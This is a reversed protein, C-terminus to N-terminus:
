VEEYWESEEVRTAKLDTRVVDRGRRRPGCQLRAQPLWGFLMSKPIRHDPMRAVHGLWALWSKRVKEAATEEDGWRKRVEAMTIREAWQRRNSIGLITRICRHHFSNLKRASKKLPIWCEAGYLLVSLVCADYLRRKTALSLSRDLFVSKRLACLLRPHRRWERTWMLM